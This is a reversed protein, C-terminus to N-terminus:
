DFGEMTAFAERKFAEANAFSFNLDISCVSAFSMIVHHEEDFWSFPARRMEAYTVAERAKRLLVVEDRNPPDIGIRDHIAEVLPQFTEELNPINAEIQYPLNLGAVAFHMNHLLGLRFMREKLTDDGRAGKMGKTVAQAVAYAHVGMKLAWEAGYFRRQTFMFNVADELIARTVKPNDINIKHGAYNTSVSRVITM